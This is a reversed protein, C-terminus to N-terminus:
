DNDFARVSHEISVSLERSSKGPQRSQQLSECDAYVGFGNHAVDFNCDPQEFQDRSIGPEQCIGSGAGCDSRDTHEFMGCVGHM